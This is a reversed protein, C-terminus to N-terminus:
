TNVTGIIGSLQFKTCYHITKQQQSQKDRRKEREECNGVLGVLIENLHCASSALQWRDAQAAGPQAFAGLAVPAHLIGGPLMEETHQM